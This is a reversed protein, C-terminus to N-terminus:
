VTETKLTAALKHWHAIVSPHADEESKLGALKKKAEEAAWPTWNEIWEELRERLDYQPYLLDEGKVIAFPGKMLRTRRLIDMDACSAQFGTCGLEHAVYHFAATAAMSMAYVCTGYDHPRKALSHIYEALEAESQPWPVTADRMEAETAVGAAEIEKKWKADLEEPSPFDAPNVPTAESM